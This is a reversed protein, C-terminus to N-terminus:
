PGMAQDNMLISAVWAKLADRGLAASMACAEDDKDRDIGGALQWAHHSIDLNTEM